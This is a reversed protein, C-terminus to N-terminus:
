EAIIIQNYHYNTKINLIRNAIDFLTEGASLFRGKM